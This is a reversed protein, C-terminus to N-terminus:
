RSRRFVAYFGFLIFVIGLGIALRELEELKAKM